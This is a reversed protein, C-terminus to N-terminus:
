GIDAKLGIQRFRLGIQSIQQRCRVIKRLGNEVQTYGDRVIRIIDFGMAIQALRQRAAGQILNQFLQFRDSWSFGFRARPPM